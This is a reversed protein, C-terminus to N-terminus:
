EDGIKSITVELLHGCEAEIFDVEHKPVTIHFGSRIKTEFEVSDEDVTEIEVVVPTGEWLQHLDVVRKPIYIRNKSALRTHFAAKDQM